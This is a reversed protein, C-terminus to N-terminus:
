VFCTFLAANHLFATSHGMLELFSWEWDTEWTDFCFSCTGQQLFVSSFCFAVEHAMNPMFDKTVKFWIGVSLINLTKTQPFGCSEYILSDQLRNISESATLFPLRHSHYIIPQAEKQAASFGNKAWQKQGQQQKLCIFTAVPRCLSPHTVCM